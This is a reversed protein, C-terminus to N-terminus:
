AKAAAGPAEALKGIVLSLIVYFVVALLVLEVAGAALGAGGYPMMGGSGMGGFAGRGGNQMQIGMGSFVLPSIFLRSVLGVIWNAVLLAATGILNAKNPKLFDMM